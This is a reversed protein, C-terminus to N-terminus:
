RDYKLTVYEQWQSSLYLNISPQSQYSLFDDFLRLVTRETNCDLHVENLQPKQMGPYNSSNTITLSHIMYALYHGGKDDILNDSLNLKELSQSNMVADVIINVTVSDITCNIFELSKLHSSPLTTLFNHVFNTLGALFYMMTALAPARTSNYKDFHIQQEEPPM